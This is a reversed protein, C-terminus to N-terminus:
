RPRQTRGRPREGRAMVTLAAQREKGKPIYGLAWKLKLDNREKLTPLLAHLKKRRAAGRFEINLANLLPPDIRGLEAMTLDGEIGLSGAYMEKLFSEATPFKSVDRDSFFSHNPAPAVKRFALAAARALLVPIHPRLKGSIPPTLREEFDKVIQLLPAALEVPAGLKRLEDKAAEIEDVKHRGTVVLKGHPSYKRLDLSATDSARTRARLGKFEGLADRHQQESVSIVVGEDTMFASDDCEDDETPIQGKDSV